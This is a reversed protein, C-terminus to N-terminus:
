SMEIDGDGAGNSISPVSGNWNGGWWRKIREGGHEEYDAKTIGVKAFEETLSFKAMGRWADNSPDNATRIGISTEPPLIPRLTGYLRRGIGPIHSPSGTIM